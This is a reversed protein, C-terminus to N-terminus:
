YQVLLAVPVELFISFEYLSNTSIGDGNKLRTIKDKITSRKVNFKKAIIYTSLKKEKMINKINLHIQKNFNDLM